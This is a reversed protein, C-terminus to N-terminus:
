IPKSVTFLIAQLSMRRTDGLEKHLANSVALIVEEEPACENNRIEDITPNGCVLGRAFREVDNVEKEFTLVEAQVNDFGISALTNEIEDVQHYGFPLKLFQPPDSKFFTAVTEYAIQAYRNTNFSGWVNFLLSGGPSLVRLAERYAIDKDPVFMIGFQSVILDFTNEDFPLATADAQQYTLNEASGTKNQAIDLMTQNLDTVTIRTSNDLQELLKHTVVGTGAAIELINKPNNNVVRKVLDLAYDEFIYPVLGKDYDEPISGTFNSFDKNM